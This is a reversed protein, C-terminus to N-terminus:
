RVVLTATQHAPHLQCYIRFTGGRSARFRVEESQGPELVRVRRYGEIAFGHQANLTNTVNVVVQNEKDVTVTQPTFGPNGSVLAIAMTRRQTSHSCATLVLLLIAPVALVRAKRASTTTV